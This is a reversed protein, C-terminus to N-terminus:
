ERKSNEPPTSVDAQVGNEKMKLRKAVASDGTNKDTENIDVHGYMSEAVMKIPSKGLSARGFIM